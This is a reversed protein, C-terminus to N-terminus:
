VQCAFGTGVTLPMFNGVIAWSYAVELEKSIAEKVRSESGEELLGGGVTLMEDHTLYFQSPTVLSRVYANLGISISAWGAIGIANEVLDQATTGDEGRVCNLLKNNVLDIGDYSILEQSTISTTAGGLFDTYAMYKTGDGVACRDGPGVPTGATCYESASLSNIKTIYGRSPFYSVNDLTIETDAAGLPGQIVAWTVNGPVAIQSGTPVTGSLFVIQGGSLTETTLTEAKTLLDVIGTGYASGILSCEIARVERLQRNYDAANYVLPSGDVENVTEKKLRKPVISNPFYSM